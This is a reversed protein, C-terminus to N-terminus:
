NCKIRLQMYESMLQSVDEYEKQLQPILQAGDKVRGKLFMDEMKVVIDAMHVFGISRSSGKLSHAQLRAGKSDECKCAAILKPFVDEYTEDFSSILEEEATIDNDSVEQFQKLDLKKPSNSM